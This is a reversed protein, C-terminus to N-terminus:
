GTVELIVPIIVLNNPDKLAFAGYFAIQKGIITEKEVINVVTMRVRINLQTSVDAYELVNKFDGFRIFELSDRIETGTFAPGLRVAADKEGDFPALDVLMNGAEVGLVRGNGKVIFNYASGSAAQRGYQEKAANPNATIAELLMPLDVAKEQVTPVVTTDWISDVYATANFTDGVGIPKGAEDLQVVKCGSLILACLILGVSYMLCLRRM